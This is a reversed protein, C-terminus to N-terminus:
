VWKLFCMQGGSTLYIFPPDSSPLWQSGKFGQQHHCAKDSRVDQSKLGEEVMHLSALRMPECPQHEVPCM